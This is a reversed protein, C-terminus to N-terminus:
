EIQRILAWVARAPAVPNIARRESWAVEDGFNHMDRRHTRCLPVTFEHSVKRGMARPQTFKLHHADAPSRACILCPQSGVFKLHAKDRRRVESITLVSKDIKASGADAQVPVFNRSKHDITPKLTVPPPPSQEVAAKDM